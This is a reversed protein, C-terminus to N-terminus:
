KRAATTAASKTAAPATGLKITQAMMMDKEQMADVSVREGVKLATADLRTTGRTIKTKAALMVMVTKGDTAKVQVHNGQVSEVTGLIKHVHGGHALAAVPILFACLAAAIIWKSTM